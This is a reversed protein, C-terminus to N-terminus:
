IRIANLEDGKELLKLYGELNYINHFKFGNNWFIYIQNSQSIFNLSSHRNFKQVIHLPKSLCSNFRTQNLLRSLESTM